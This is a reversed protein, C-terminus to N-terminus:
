GLQLFVSKVCCTCILLDPYDEFLSLIALEGKVLEENTPMLMPLM